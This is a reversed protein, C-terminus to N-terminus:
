DAKVEEVPEEVKTFEGVMTKLETTLTNISLEGM